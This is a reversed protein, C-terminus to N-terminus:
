EEVNTIADVAATGSGAIVDTAAALALVDLRMAEMWDHLLKAGENSTFKQLESVIERTSVAM